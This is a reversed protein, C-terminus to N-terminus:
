WNHEALNQNVLYADLSCSAAEMVLCYLYEGFGKVDADERFAEDQAGDHSRIIGVVYAPDFGGEARTQVECLFQDRNRILKLAVPVGNTPNTFDTAFYVVSTASRHVPPGDKIDYRGVLFM